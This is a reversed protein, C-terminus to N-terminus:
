AGLPIRLREGLVAADQALREGRVAADLDVCLPVGEEIRERGRRTRELGGGLRRLRESRSRDVYPYAHVGARREERFFAVDAGVDVPRGPDVGGTAAALHQDRRRGGREQPGVLEAVDALVPQLVQRRRLADVLQSVVVERGQPRQVPRVQRNGRRREETALVFELLNFLQERPLVDAQQGQGSRAAGALRPEPQLRGRVGAVAIGIPDEPNRKRWKAVRVEHEFRRSPGDPAFSPTASCM